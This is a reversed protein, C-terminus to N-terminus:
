CCGRLRLIEATLLWRYRTMMMPMFMLGRDLLLRVVELHRYYAALRLACDDGAHINAGRDLLLRVVELHGKRAAVQLEDDNNM